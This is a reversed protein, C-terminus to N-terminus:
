DSADKYLRKVFPGVTLGQAVISFLVVVYTLALFLGREPGAPLSLALAVSIGGRLGSWTLIKIVHPSFGRARRLLMVPVSVSVWRALLVVVITILGAGLYGWTFGIIIVEAGIIVFLLANLFEDVLEWFQDLRERTPATMAFRRGQNGILLGAVVMALPGSIHLKLALAYGGTVIALTLLTEVKYDEVAKLMLYVLWGVVGGFLIGGIVELGVLKLVHGVSADHGQVIDLLLVFLVVGVGDNFLSEGVVKLHLSPPLGTKRLIAGVAIPDTPSILAGFLICHMLPVDYGLATLIWYSSFGVLATSILVATTALLAVVSRQEFLADLDVHLAGAFLLAGLMGHLLARDFDLDELLKAVPEVIEPRLKGALVLVVSIALSMVMVGITNPLRIFRHNVWALLATVTTLAAFIEFFSM